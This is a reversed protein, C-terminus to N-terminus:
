DFEPHHPVHCANCAEGAAHEEPEVQAFWDPKAEGARHCRLCITAADPREPVMAVPDAAHAGLAGHCAECHVRSHASGEAAAAADDHCELCAARGAFVPERARSDEIAGTRFHGYQGFDSPVFMARAAVFVILGVVFLGAVRVLHEFDRFWERM